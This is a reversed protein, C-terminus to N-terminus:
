ANLNEEIPPTHARQSEEYLFYIGGAALLIVVVIIAAMPGIGEQKQAPTEQSPEM